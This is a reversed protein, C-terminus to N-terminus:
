LNGERLYRAWGELDPFLRGANFGIFDLERIMRMIESNFLDLKKDILKKDKQQQDEINEFESKLNELESSIDFEIDLSYLQRWSLVEKNGDKLCDYSYEALSKIRGKESDDENKSENSKSTSNAMYGCYVFRGVQSAIRRTFVLPVVILPAAPQMSTNGLLNEWDQKRDELHVTYLKRKEPVKLKMVWIRIYYKEIKNIAGLKERLMRSYAGSAAFYAAVYPNLTWDMLLTPLGYHQALCLTDFNEWIPAKFDNDSHIIHQTYRRFRDLLKKQLQIFNKEKHIDSLSEYVNHRLLSPLLYYESTSEGRFYYRSNNGSQKSQQALLQLIAFFIEPKVVFRQSMPLKEDEEKDEEEETKGKGIEKKFYKAVHEATRIFIVNERTPIKGDDYSNLKKEIEDKTAM